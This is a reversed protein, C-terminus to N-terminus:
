IVGGVGRFYIDLVSFIFVQFDIESTREGAAGRQLSRWSKNAGKVAGGVVSRSNIERKGISRWRKFIRLADTGTRLAARCFRRESRLLLVSRYYVRPAAKHFEGTSHPWLCIGASAASFNIHGVNWPLTRSKYCALIHKWRTKLPSALFTQQLKKDSNRFHVYRPLLAALITCYFISFWRLHPYINKNRNITDGSAGWTFRPFNINAISCRKASCGKKTPTIIIQLKHKM